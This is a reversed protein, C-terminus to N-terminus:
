RPAFQNRYAAPTMQQARLFTRHFHRTTGFGAHRAVRNLPWNTEVLLQRARELHAAVIAENLTQGTVRSFDREIKSRSVNLERILQKVALPETAHETIYRMALHVDRDAITSVDSSQRIHILGSPQVITPSEPPAEGRLLGDLLKAAERGLKEAPMVAGSVSPTITEALLSDDDFAVVAVEDPVAIGTAACADVIEIGLAMSWAFIGVPKKLRPAWRRLYRRLRPIDDGPQEAFECNCNVSKVFEQIAKLRYNEIPFPRRTNCFAFNRFGGSLLHEGMARVVARDDVRVSPIDRLATPPASTFTVIKTRGARWIRRISSLNTLVHTIMGDWEINGLTSDVDDHGMIVHLKWDPRSHAFGQIGRYIQRAWESWDFLRLAIRLRPPSASSAHAASAFHAKRAV